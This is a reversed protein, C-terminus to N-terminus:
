QPLQAKEAAPAKELVKLREAVLSPVDSRVAKVEWYFRQSLNGGVATRVTFHGGWFEVRWM